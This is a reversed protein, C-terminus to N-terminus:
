ILEDERISDVLKNMAEDIDSATITCGAAKAHGGGGFQACLASVDYSCSSRVSARFVGAAGPQRIAAAIQVGSLSRAIEVLTELHEDQLALAMKLAYPFTVVAIRGDAFLHLNSIGASEARLLEMSKSSFLKHNIDACDIGSALLEAARLHTEPTVNSYRFCGTDSSIAAYLATCLSDTIEVREETALQKVLDFMIEGTAAAEPRIFHDAYIEGAGHHDICLDIRDGFLEWLSGLQAPSASDVAIVREIELEEPLSAPLVSEQEGDLLFRLREPVEDACLCFARSGLDSLIQKLAFASGVADADPSRHFLILTDAPQELYSLVQEFTWAHLERM